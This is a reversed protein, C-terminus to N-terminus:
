GSKVLEKLERRLKLNEIKLKILRNEGELGRAEIESEKEFYYKLINKVSRIGVGLEKSIKNVEDGMMYRAVIMKKIEGKIGGQSRGLKKAIGEIDMEDNNSSKLMNILEMREEETWKNGYNIHLKKKIEIDILGSNITTESDTENIADKYIPKIERNM